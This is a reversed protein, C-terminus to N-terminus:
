ALFSLWLSITRYLTPALIHRSKQMMWGALLSQAAVIGLQILLTNSPLTLLYPIKWIVFLGSAALWGWSKGLWSSLRLQIYGRFIFEEALCTALIILLASGQESSVGSILRSFMGRLFISLLVVAVGFQLAPTLLAKNWGASRLPQQRYALAAGFILLGGLAPVLQHILMETSSVDAPTSGSGWSNWIFIALVLAAAFLGLAFYGERRPFKFELPPQQRIRPNLAMIMVVAIVGLMEVFIIAVQTFSM